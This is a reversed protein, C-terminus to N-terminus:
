SLGLSQRPHPRAPPRYVPAYPEIIVKGAAHGDEVSAIAQQVDHLSFREMVNPTILGYEAVETIKAVGEKTRQVGAGGLEEATAPDATSIILGPDKAVPAIERLAHAGGPG